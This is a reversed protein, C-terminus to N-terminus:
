KSSGALCSILGLDLHSGQLSSYDSRKEKYMKKVNLTKLGLLFLLLFLICMMHMEVSLFRPLRSSHLLIM